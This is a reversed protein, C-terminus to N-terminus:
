HVIVMFGKSFNNYIQNIVEPPLQICSYTKPLGLANHNDESTHSHLMIDTNLRIWPQIKATDRESEYMTVRPLNVLDKTFWGVTKEIEKGGQMLWVECPSGAKIEIWPKNGLNTTRFNITNKVVEGHISTLTAIVNYNTAPTFIRDPIFLVTNGKVITEGKVGEIEAAKIPYNTTLKINRSLWVSYDGYKPYTEKVILKPATTFSYEKSSDTTLGHVGELGSEILIKYTKQHQLQQDPIFQWRTFDSESPVFRGNIEIKVQKELSEKLIPTNFQLTIPGSTPVNKNPSISVLEPKVKTLVTGKKTVTFPPILAKAKIFSYFYELGQPKNNESVCLKLHFLSQWQYEYDVKTNSIESTIMFDDIAKNTNMPALFYYDINVQQLLNDRTVKVWVFHGLILWITLLSLITFAFVKM